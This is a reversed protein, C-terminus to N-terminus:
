YDRLGIMGLTCLRSCDTADRRVDDTFMFAATGLGEFRMDDCEGDDPYQGSDDGFDIAQCNTAALAEQYNWLRAMGANVAAQCDTADRGTEAWGLGQAMAPGTFRRDDCEGDRPYAGSDDGFMIGGQQMPSPTPSGGQSPKGSSQALGPGAALALCLASITLRM